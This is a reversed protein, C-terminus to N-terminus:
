IGVKEAFKPLMMNGTCESDVVAKVRYGQINVELTILKHPSATQNGMYFYHDKEPYSDNEPSTFRGQGKTLTPIGKKM